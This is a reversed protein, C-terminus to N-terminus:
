HLKILQRGELMITAGPATSLEIVTIVDDGADVKRMAKSDITYRVGAGDGENYGVGTTFVISNSLGQYVFWDDEPNTVPGPVATAGLAAAIDNVVIEGFAGQANESAAQQDSRFYIELHTRVITFPRLLLAGASLSLFLTKTSGALVAADARDGIWTTTRKAGSRVIAHGGRRAM